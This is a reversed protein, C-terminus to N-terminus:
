IRKPYHIRFNNEIYRRNETFQLWIEKPTPTNHQTLSSICNSNSHHWDNKERMENSRRSIDNSVEKANPKNETEGCSSRSNRQKKDWKQQPLPQKIRSSSFACHKTKYCCNMTTTRQERMEGREERTEGKQCVTQAKSVLGNSVWSNTFSILEFFTPQVADSSCPLWLALFFRWRTKM